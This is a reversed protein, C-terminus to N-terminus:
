ISPNAYCYRCGHKCPFYGGIDRSKVCGCETRQSPDNAKTCKGYLESLVDGDICHGKRVDIGCNVFKDNACSYINMDFAKAIAVLESVFKIQEKENLNEIKIGAKALSSLTDKYISLYSITIKSDKMDLNSLDKCLREFANLRSKFPNGDIIIEEADNSILIPDFRINFAKSPYDKRMKELTKISDVYNPVLPELKKNYGTITYQFYLNYLELLGKDNVFKSFDKSWLVISHVNEPSLDITYIKEPYYPNAMTVQKNKLSEQLWDYYFAPIDTRRSASIITKM